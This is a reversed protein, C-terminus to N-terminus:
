SMISFVQIDGLNPCSAPDKLRKNPDEIFVKLKEDMIKAVDPYKVICMNFLRMFNFLRRIAQISAFRNEKCLDVIHTTILRPFIALVQEPTIPKKINGNAIFSLSNFFHREFREKM